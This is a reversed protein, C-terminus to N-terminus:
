HYGGHGTVKGRFVWYSWTVYLLIVSLLFLTGIPRAMM